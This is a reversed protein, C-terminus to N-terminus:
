FSFMGVEKRGVLHKSEPRMLERLPFIANKLFYVGGYTVMEWM